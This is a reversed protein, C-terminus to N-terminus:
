VSSSTSCAESSPKAHVYQAGYTGFGTPLHSLLAFVGLKKIRFCLRTNNKKIKSKEKCWKQMTTSDAM